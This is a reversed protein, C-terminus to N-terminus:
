HNGRRITCFIGHQPERVQTIPPMVEQEPEIPVEVPQAALEACRVALQLLCKTDRSTM